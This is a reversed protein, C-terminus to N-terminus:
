KDSIQITDHSAKYEFAVEAISAASSTDPYRLLWWFALGFPSRYRSCSLHRCDQQRTKVDNDPTSAVGFSANGSDECMSPM